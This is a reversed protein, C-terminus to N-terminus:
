VDNFAEKKWGLVVQLIEQISMELYTVTVSFEVVYLLLKIFRQQGLVTESKMTEDSM